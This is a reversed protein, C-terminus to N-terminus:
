KLLHRNRESGRGFNDFVVIEDVLGTTLRDVIHSDILGAGGILRMRTGALNM